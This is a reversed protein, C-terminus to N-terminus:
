RNSHVSELRILGGRSRLPQSRHFCVHSSQRTMCSQVVSHRGKTQHRAGPVSPTMCYGRVDIHELAKLADHVKRREPDLAPDVDLTTRPVGHIVSAYGGM